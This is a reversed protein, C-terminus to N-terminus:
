GADTWSGASTVSNMGDFSGGHMISRLFTNIFSAVVRTGVVSNAAASLDNSLKVDASDNAVGSVTGSAVDGWQLEFDHINGRRIPLRNVDKRVM